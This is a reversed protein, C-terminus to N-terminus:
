PALMADLAPSGQRPRPTFTAPLTLWGGNIGQSPLRQAQDRDVRYDPIRRLVETLMIQFGRRALNSGSCRHIGVGFAMHRNPSRDLRVTGPEDFTEPDHNAALWPLMIREGAQLQQGAIETPRTVMRALATVPSFYRLFEETALQLHKPEDLLRQKEEPHEDLWALASGTLSTTTDIGGFILLMVMEFVLQDSMPEDSVSKSILYSTIDDRPEERRQGILALVDAHLQGLTELCKLHEPSGNAYGPIGHIAHAIEQWNHVPLGLWDLTLVAPVPVAIDAILDCSGRDVIRDVFGEALVRVRPVLDREVAAPSLLPNLLARYALAEPPDMEIPVNRSGLQSPVTIINEPAGEPRASSFRADDRSIEFVDEYRTPIWFGGHDTSWAVPCKERLARYAGLPDAAFTTGQPDFEVVPRDESSRVM